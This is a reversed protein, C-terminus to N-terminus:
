GLPPPAPGAVPGPAPGPEAVFTVVALAFVLGLGLGVLVGPTPWSWLVLALAAAAVLGWGLAARYRGAWPGVPGTRFGARDALGRLAGIGDAWVERVARARRGGGTVWAAFAVVVGLAGVVRVSARLFRVLADYVSGAAGQSVGAPLADLYVARFVTLGVGLLAVACAVGLAGVVLARRRRRAVLVGGAVLVAAVVPLWNGLVQLVRFWVRVEGLQEGRAVTLETHVEPIRGAVTLGDDVLRQKVREVVPGLDVTVTDDTLQVAGGGSGTLAKDVADHARRNAETWLQRFADSRAVDLARDHVFGRVAGELAGGAEGLARALRPRDAPAVGSLLAPLDLRTMLAATVRDAVAEQVQPDDALPAVTAVYRDTNGVEDFAWSALVSLPALVCGLAILLAALFARVRHHGTREREEELAAVRERLAALEGGAGDDRVPGVEGDSAM